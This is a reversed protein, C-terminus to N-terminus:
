NSSISVNPPGSHPNVIVTAMGRSMLSCGYRIPQIYYTKQAPSSTSTPLVLGTAIKTGGIPADYWEFTTCNNGPSPLTVNQGACVVIRNNLDSATIKTTAIRQIEHVNLSSLATVASALRIQIKDFQGDVPSYTVVAKAGNDLLTIKLLSNSGSIVNGVPTSGKFTQIQFADLLALTLLSSPRSLVVRVSDGPQSLTEFFATQQAYALAQVGVSMTSYTDDNNDIVRELFPSSATLTALNALNTSGVGFVIDLPRDCSSRNTVNTNFYAHYLKASIGVGLGSVTVKVGNFAVGPAFTLENENSGSLLGLLTSSSYSTGVPAGDNTAEVKIGGLVSLVAAGFGLKVTVLDTSTPKISGTFKLNQSASGVLGVSLTSFNGVIGDIAKTEDSVSPGLGATSAVQENAYIRKSTTCQGKVMGSGWVMLGFTLLLLASINKVTFSRM